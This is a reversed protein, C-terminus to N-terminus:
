GEVEGFPFDLFEKIVSTFSGNYTEARLRKWGVQGGTNTNEAVNPYVWSRGSIFTTGTADM